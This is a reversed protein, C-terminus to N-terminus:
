FAGSPAVDEGCFTQEWMEEENWEWLDYYRNKDDSGVYWRGRSDLFDKIVWVIDKTYQHERGLMKIRGELVQWFLKEAAPEYSSGQEVLMEALNMKLELRKPHMQGLCERSDAIAQKLCGIAEDARGQRKLNLHLNSLTQVSQLNQAGHHLTQCSLEHCRRLIHESVKMKELNGDRFAEVNLLYGYSYMTGISRINAEGYQQLYHQWINCIDHSDIKSQARLKRPEAALVLFRTFMVMPNDSPLIRQAVNAASQMISRSIDGQDHMALVLMMQNLTMVIAPDDRRLMAEFHVDADRMAVQAIQDAKLNSPDLRHRTRNYCVIYCAGVYKWPEDHERAPEPLSLANLDFTNALDEVPNFISRPSTTQLDPSSQAQLPSTAFLPPELNHQSHFHNTQDEHCRPCVVNWDDLSSVSSPPSTSLYRWSWMNDQGHISSLPNPHITQHAMMSIDQQTVHHCSSQRRPRHHSNNPVNPIVEQLVHSDVFSQHDALDDNAAIQSLYQPLQQRDSTGYTGHRMKQTPVHKAEYDDERLSPYAGSVELGETKMHGFASTTSSNHKAPSVYEQKPHLKPSYGWNPVDSGPSQSYKAAPEGEALEEESGEFDETEPTVARVSQDHEAQQISTKALAIELFKEDSLKRGKVYKRLDKVSRTNNGNIVFATNRKGMGRRVHHLIACLQYSHDNSNKNIGWASLRSKFMRDSNQTIM